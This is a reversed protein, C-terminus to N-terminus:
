GQMPPGDNQIQSQQTKTLVAELKEGKAIREIQANTLKLSTLQHPMVGADSLKDLATKFTKLKAKQETTLDLYNALVDAPAMGRPPGGPGGGGPGGQGPGGQGPGGQGPGGQGFGGQGGQGPGGFGGQGPGGQGPDGFGPGGQGGGPGRRQGPGGQGGQGPPPGGDRKSFSPDAQGKLQRPIFPFTDTLVYYYTGNPFEPTVGTRGNYQDLDGAGSVWEYDSAFSGDYVGGPGDPRTGSKLRYGSTLKKMASVKSADSYAYLGYIPYGDAAWGVLAMKNKYDLKNLLGYPLGHYHYAGNPQVHALNEDVGLGRGNAIQGVLAEYHWAFNNNWLEATGPDFPVGNIAVGFLNGRAPRTAPTPKVPISWSYKQPSIRNPNGQNPFQGVSHDPIGNSSIVRKDGEVKISVESKYEVTRNAAVYRGTQALVMAAAALGLPIFIKRKM